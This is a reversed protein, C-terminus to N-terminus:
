HTWNASAPATFYQVWDVDLDVTSPTTANPKERRGIATQIGLWMPKTPAHGRMIATTHGDMFFRVFYPNWAVGFTHWQTFDGPVFAQTMTDHPRFHNTLSVRAHNGDRADFEMFDVEPPWTNGQPWLLAVSKVGYGHSFRARVQYMGYTGTTAKAGCIGSGSWVGNVKTARLTLMGDHVIANSAYKPGRPNHTDTNNYVSWAHTDVSKGNFEDVFKQQWWKDATPAQGSPDATSANATVQPALALAAAAVATVAVIM